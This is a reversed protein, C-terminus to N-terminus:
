VAVLREGALYRSLPEASSLRSPPHFALGRCAALLYAVEPSSIFAMGGLLEAAAMSVREISRQVSYRVFLARPLLEDSPERAIMGCAIGELASMAGEIEIALLERESAGGKGTALAREVLASAVGVYSATVLLQFWLYGAIEVDDLESDKDPFFLLDGPIVVDDLVVEDSEAGTLVSSRWFPRRVIGPTDAPVLVIARRSTGDEDTLSASGSLLDMSRSLTCPKKSGRLTYGGDDTVEAQLTASLINTGSRGEAFGSAMLLDNGAVAQLLAACAQDGGFIGFEVLTVATFNHMTAAIALSPSLCGLARHIRVAQLADAGGGGLESPILMGPGHCERFTPIAASGPAELELLSPDALRERLGPVFRDLTARETQLLPM